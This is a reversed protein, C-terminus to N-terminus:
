NNALFDITSQLSTALAMVSNAYTRGASSARAGGAYYKAAATREATYGGAGAGLDSFYLAMAVIADDVAWPNPVAHGSIAATRAEYSAWTSPIFQAPGM